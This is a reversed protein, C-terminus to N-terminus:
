SILNCLLKLNLFFFLVTKIMWDQRQAKQGKRSPMQWTETSTHWQPQNWKGLNEAPNQLYQAPFLVVAISDPDSRGGLHGQWLMKRYCVLAAHIKRREQWGGKRVPVWSAVFLWCSCLGILLPHSSFHQLTIEVRLVVHFTELFRNWDRRTFPDWTRSFDRTWWNTKGKGIVHVRTIDTGM